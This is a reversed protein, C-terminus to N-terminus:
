SVVETAPAEAPPDGAGGDIGACIQAPESSAAIQAAEAAGPAQVDALASTEAPAPDERKVEGGAPRFEAILADLERRLENTLHHAAAQLHLVTPMTAMDAALARAKADLLGRITM